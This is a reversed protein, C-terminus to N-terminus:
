ILPNVAWKSIRVSKQFRIVPNGIPYSQTMWQYHRVRKQNQQSKHYKIKLLEEDTIVATLKDFMKELLFYRFWCGCVQVTYKM